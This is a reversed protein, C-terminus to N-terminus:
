ALADQTRVELANSDAQKFGRDCPPAGVCANELQSMNFAHLMQSSRELAPAPHDQEASVECRELHAPAREACTDLGVDHVARGIVGHELAEKRAIPAAFGLSRNRAVVYARQNRRQLRVF